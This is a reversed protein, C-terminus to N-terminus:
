VRFDYGSIHRVSQVREPVFAVGYHDVKIIKTKVLKDAIDAM